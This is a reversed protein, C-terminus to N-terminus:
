LSGRGYNDISKNDIGEFRCRNMESGYYACTECTVEVTRQFANGEFCACNEGHSVFVQICVGNVFNVSIMKQGCSRCVYNECAKESLFVGEDVKVTQLTRGM